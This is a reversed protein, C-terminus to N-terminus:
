SVLTIVTKQLLKTSLWQLFVQVTYCLITDVYLILPVCEELCRFFVTSYKYALRDSSSIERVESTLVDFSLTSYKYALHVLHCTTYKLLMVRLSVIVTREIM